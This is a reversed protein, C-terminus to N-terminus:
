IGSNADDDIRVLRSSESAGEAVFRHKVFRIGHQHRVLVGVVVM